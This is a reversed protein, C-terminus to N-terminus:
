PQLSPTRLTPTPAYKCVKMLLFATRSSHVIRARWKQWDLYIHIHSVFVFMCIYILLCVFSFYLISHILWLLYLFFWFCCTSRIVCKHFMSGSFVLYVILGTWSTVLTFLVQPRKTDHVSNREGQWLTCAIFTDVLLSSLIRIFYQLSGELMCCTFLFTSNYLGMPLSLPKEPGCVASRTGASQWCVAM